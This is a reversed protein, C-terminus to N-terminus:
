VRIDGSGNGPQGVFLEIRGVTVASPRHPLRNVMNGVAM